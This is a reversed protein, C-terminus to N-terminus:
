GTRRGDPRIGLVNELPRALKTLTENTVADFAPDSYEGVAYLTGLVILNFDKPAAYGYGSHKIRDYVRDSITEEDM